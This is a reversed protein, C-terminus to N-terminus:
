RGRRPCFPTPNARCRLEDAEHIGCWFPRRGDEGAAWVARAVVQAFVMIAVMVLAEIVLGGPSAVNMAAMAAAGGMWGIWFIPRWGTPNM